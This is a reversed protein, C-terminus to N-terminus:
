HSSQSINTSIMKILRKEGENYLIYQRNAEPYHQRIKWLCM